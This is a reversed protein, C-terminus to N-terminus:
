LRRSNIVETWMFIKFIFVAHLLKNLLFFLLSSVIGCTSNHGAKNKYVNDEASINGTSRQTAMHSLCAMKAPRKYAQTVIYSV